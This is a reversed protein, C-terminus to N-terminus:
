WRGGGRTKRLVFSLETYMPGPSKSSIVTGYRSSAEALVRRRQCFSHVVAAGVVFLSAPVRTAPRPRKAFISLHVDHPTRPRTRASNYLCTRSVRVGGRAFPVLRAPAFLGERRVVLNDNKYRPALINVAKARRFHTTSPPAHFRPISFVSFSRDSACWHDALM